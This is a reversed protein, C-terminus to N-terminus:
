VQTEEAEPTKKAERFPKYVNKILYDAIAVFPIALLIGLIGFIRGGVIIAILIWLGSIGFTGGFLKPKLICGDITQLILAFLIFYLAHMPNVLLLILGGIVAGIIPGFTPILNTIGVIVSVLGPYQMRLIMMFIFNVFGIILGDVISFVLYKTLITDIKQAHVLLTMRKKDDKQMWKLINSAFSAIKDKEALFYVSFVIGIGWAGLHGGVTTISKQITDENESIYAIVSGIINQSTSLINEFYKWVSGAGVKGLWGSFATIYSEKNNYLLMVSDVLQPIVMGVVFVIFLYIILLAIVLSLIRKLKASKIKGFPRNEFWRMLPNTLYALIGGAILPYLFYGVDCIIQWITSLNSLLFYFLIGICIAVASPYWKKDRINKM